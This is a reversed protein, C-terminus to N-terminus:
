KKKKKLAAGKAFSDVLGIHTSAYNIIVDTAETVTKLDIQKIRNDGHRLKQQKKLIIIAEKINM